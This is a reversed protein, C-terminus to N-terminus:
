EQDSAMVLEQSNEDNCIDPFVLFDSTETTSTDPEITSTDPEITSTDPEITPPPKTIKRRKPQPTIEKEIIWELSGIIGQAYTAAKEPIDEFSEAVTVLILNTKVLPNKETIKVITLDGGTKSIASKRNFATIILKINNISISHGHYTDKVRCYILKALLDLSKEREEKIDLPPLPLRGCTKCRKFCSNKM